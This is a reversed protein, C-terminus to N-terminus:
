YSDPEVIVEYACRCNIINGPSGKPDGPYELPEGGINFEENYSVTQGDAAMHDDRSRQDFTSIWVKMKNGPLQEAGVKVGESSASVVETRAIRLAKWHNIEGQMRSIQRAIKDMGWGETIGQDVAKKAINQIDDYTTRIVRTIKDGTRTRVTELIKSMWLDEDIPNGPTIVDEDDKRVMNGRYGKVTDRAFAIGVKIYYKEYASQFISSDIQLDKIKGTIQEPTTLDKIEAMVQKRVEGYMGGFLREGMRIYPLRKRNIDQWTM